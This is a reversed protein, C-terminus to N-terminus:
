DIHSSSAYFKGDALFIIICSQLKTLCSYKYFYFASVHCVSGKGYACRLIITKSKVGGSKRYFKHLNLFHELYLVNHCFLLYFSRIDRIASQQIKLFFFIFNTLYSLIDRLRYPVLLFLTIVIFLEHFVFLCVFVCLVAM